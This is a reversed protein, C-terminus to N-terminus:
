DTGSTDARHIPTDPESLWLLTDIEIEPLTLEEVDSSDPAFEPLHLSDAEVNEPVLHSVFQIGSLQTMQRLVWDRRETAYPGPAALSLRKPNPLVVAMQASLRPTLQDPEIGFYDHIAKGAGFVGPGFEVVNLYIELIREKPLFLEIQITIFAEIGKRIYSQKPWLYLNKALQQTITSAGRVRGGEASEEMVQRISETDFGRHSRFLQDESAIVAWKLHDQISEAPIWWDRLNYREADLSAWDERLTFSTFPPDIWRLSLVSVSLLILMLAISLALYISIRKVTAM